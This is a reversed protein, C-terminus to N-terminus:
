MPVIVVRGRAAAREVARELPRAVAPPAIYIVGGVARSRAWARCIEALREPAKVTLEVEVATAAAAPFAAPLLLLDPRHARPGHRGRIAPCLEAYASRIEPEGLVRHDAFAAELRVAAACCAAAHAASAPSLRVLALESRGCARLGARTLTYLPPEGSLLRWARLLGAREAGALRARASDVRRQGDRAALAAATVAGLRAVWGLMEVRQGAGQKATAM